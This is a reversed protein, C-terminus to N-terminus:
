MNRSNNKSQKSKSIVQDAFSPKPPVVPKKPANDNKDNPSYPIVQSLSGAIGDLKPAKTNEPKEKETVKQDIDGAIGARRSKLRKALEEMVSAEVSKKNRDSNEDKEVHKLKKKGEVLENPSPKVPKISGDEKQQTKKSSTVTKGKQVLSTLPPLPPPPPLPTMNQTQKSSAAAAPSTVSCSNGVNGSEKQKNNNQQNSQEQTKSVDNSSKGIQEELNSQLQALLTLLKEFNQTKQQPNNELVSKLTLYLARLQQLILKLQNIFGPNKKTDSHKDNIHKNDTTM